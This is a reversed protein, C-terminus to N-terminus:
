SSIESKIHKAKRRHKISLTWSECVSSHERSRTKQPSNPDLLYVFCIKMNATRDLM